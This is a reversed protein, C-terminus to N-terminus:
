LDYFHLERPENTQIVLCRKDNIFATSVIGKDATYPEIPPKIVGNKALVSLDKGEHVHILFENKPLAVVPHVYDNYM